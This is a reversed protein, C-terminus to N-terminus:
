VQGFCETSPCLTDFPKAHCYVFTESSTWNCSRPFQRTYLVSRTLCVCNLSQQSAQRGNNFLALVPCLKAPDSEGFKPVNRTVTQYLNHLEATPTGPTCSYMSITGLIRWAKAEALTESPTHCSPLYRQEESSRHRANSHRLSPVCVVTDNLSRGSCTIDQLSLVGAV